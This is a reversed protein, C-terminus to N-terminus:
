KGVENWLPYLPAVDEEITSFRGLEELFYNDGSDDNVQSVEGGLVMGHGSEAYFRHYLRRQMTVSQGPSLRLPQHPTIPRICGDVMVQIIREDSPDEHCFEVMLNGGGRNIIDEMKVRHHHFPTEQSENIFMLKEAYPIMKKNTQVGNRLCFLTLGRTAFTGSGFDTVDWGMQHTRLYESIKPELAYDKESWDAWLPLSWKFETLLNVAEVIAANVESRKM